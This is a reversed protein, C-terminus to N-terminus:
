ETDLIPHRDNFIQILKFLKAAAEADSLEALTRMVRSDGKAWDKFNEITYPRVEGTEFWMIKKVLRRERNTITRGGVKKGLWPDYIPMDVEEDEIAPYYYYCISGVLHYRVFYVVGAKSKPEVKRYPIGHVCIGWINDLSKIESISLQSLTKESLFLLNRQRDLQYAFEPLKYLPQSPADNKFDSHSFYVGDKFHYDGAQGLALTTTLLLLLFIRLM